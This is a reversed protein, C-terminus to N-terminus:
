TGQGVLTRVTVPLSFFKLDGGANKMKSSVTVFKVYTSITLTQQINWRIDYTIQKGGTGCDTYLMQYNTVPAQTFDVDGSSTLASGGAATDVTYSNGVCDTVTLVPSTSAKVSSIKETMMQSLATSNSQQRNRGDSGISLAVLSMSGVVGVLLIVLAIMLEILTMGRENRARVKKKRLTLEMVIRELASIQVKWGQDRVGGDL